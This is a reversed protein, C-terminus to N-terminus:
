ELMNGKIRKGCGPCFNFEAGEIIWKGGKNVIKLDNQHECKKQRIKQILILILLCLIVIASIIHIILHIYFEM